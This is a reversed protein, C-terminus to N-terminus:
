TPDLGSQAPEDGPRVPSPDDLDPSRGESPEQHANITEMPTDEAEERAMRELEARSMSSVDRNSIEHQHFKASIDPVVKNMLTKFVQVQAASWAVEGLLVQEAVEIQTNVIAAIKGRLAAAYGPTLITLDGKPVKSHVILAGISKAQDALNSIESAKQLAYREIRAKKNCEPGCYVHKEANARVIWFTKQCAPCTKEIQSPTIQFSTPRVAIKRRPM